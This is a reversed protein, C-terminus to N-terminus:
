VFLIHESVFEGDKESELIIKYGEFKYGENDYGDVWQITVYVLKSNDACLVAARDSWAAARMNVVYVLNRARGVVLGNACVAIPEFHDNLFSQAEKFKAFETHTNELVEDETVNEVQVNIALTTRM